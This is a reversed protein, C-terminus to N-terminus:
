IMIFYFKIKDNCIRVNQVTNDDSTQNADVREQTEPNIQRRSGMSRRVIRMVFYLPMFIMAIYDCYFNLKFLQGFSVRASECALLTLKADIADTEIRARSNSIRM